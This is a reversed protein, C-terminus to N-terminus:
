IFRKKHIYPKLTSNGKMFVKPFQSMFKKYDRHESTIEVRTVDKNLDSEITKNYIKVFGSKTSEM